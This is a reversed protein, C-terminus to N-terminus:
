TDAALDIASLLVPLEYSLNHRLGNIYFTPTGNVGSRVGSVFDRHVRDSWLHESLEHDVEDVALGVSTVGVGIHVPDILDQHDFFWDHMEWFREHSNATESVESAMEAYPHINTIPFHRYAFRVVGPRMRLVDQVVPHAARCYPCQFDGYEILTVPAAPDGFIHDGSGLPTDLHAEGLIFPTTM